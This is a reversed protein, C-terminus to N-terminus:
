PLCIVHMFQAIQLENQWIELRYIGSSLATNIVGSNVVGSSVIQGMGNYLKYSVNTRTLGLLKIQGSSPNPYCSIRNKEATNVSAALCGALITQVNHKITDLLLVVSDGPCETSCGHQHFAISGLHPDNGNPHPFSDTAQLGEKFLKWALLKNLSTLLTDSPTTENYNGLLCVGMTGGNKGCFHAGQIDDEDAVGLDDRGAYIDGNPAILYNYGIDDWGNGQLHLLYINRVANTYDTTSNSGASHHIICHSVLTSTRGQKPDPLGARWVDQDIVDPKICHSSKQKLHRNAVILSPAYFLEVRIFAKDESSIEINNSAKHFIYFVSYEALDHGEITKLEIEKGALNLKFNEVQHNLSTIKISSFYQRGDVLQASSDLLISDLKLYNWSENQAQTHFGLIFAFAFLFGRIKM